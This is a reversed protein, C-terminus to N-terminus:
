SMHPPKEPDSSRGTNESQGLVKVVSESPILAKEIKEILDLCLEVTLAAKSNGVTVSCSSTNM